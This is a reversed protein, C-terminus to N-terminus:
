HLYSHALYDFEDVPYCMCDQSSAVGDAGRTTGGAHIGEIMLVTLVTTAIMGPLASCPNAHRLAFLRVDYVFLGALLPPTGASVRLILRITVTGVCTEICTDTRNFHNNIFWCLYGPAAALLGAILRIAIPCM